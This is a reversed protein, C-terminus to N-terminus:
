ICSYVEQLVSNIFDPNEKYYLSYDQLVQQKIKYKIDDELKKVEPNEVSNNYDSVIKEPSSELHKNRITGSKLLIENKIVQQSKLIGLGSIDSNENECDAFISIMRTFRGTICLPSKGKCYCEKLNLIFNELITNRREKKYTMMYSFIYRIYLPEKMNIKMINSNREKIINLMAIADPINKADHHNIDSDCNMIFSIIDYYEWLYIMKKDVIKKIRIFQNKTENNINSDHVNQSISEWKVKSDIKNKKNEKKSLQKKISNDLKNLEERLQNIDERTYKNDDNEAEENIYIRDRIRDRIFTSNDTNVSQYMANTYYKNATQTDNLVFDYINGLRYNDIDSNKFKFNSYNIFDRAKEIDNDNDINTYKKNCINNLLFNIMYYLVIIISIMM